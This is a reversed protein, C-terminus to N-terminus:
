PLRLVLQYSAGAGVRAGLCRLYVNYLPSGVFVALPNARVGVAWVVTAAPIVQSGDFSRPTKRRLKDQRKSM